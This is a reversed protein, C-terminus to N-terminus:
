HSTASVNQDSLWRLLCERKATDAEYSSEEREIHMQFIRRRESRNIVLPRLTERSVNVVPKSVTKKNLESSDMLLSSRPSTDHRIKPLYLTKKDNPVETVEGHNKLDFTQAAILNGESRSRQNLVLPKLLSTSTVPSSRSGDGRRMRPMPQYDERKTPHQVDQQQFEDSKRSKLKLEKRQM